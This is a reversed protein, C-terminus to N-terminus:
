GANRESTNAVKWRKNIDAGVIRVCYTCMGGRGLVYSLTRVAPSKGGGDDDGVGEEHEDVDDRM